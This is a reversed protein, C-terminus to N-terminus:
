LVRNWFTDTYRTEFKKRQSRKSFDKVSLVAYKRTSQSIPGKRILNQITGIGRFRKLARASRVPNKVHSTAMTCITQHAHPTRSPTPACAVHLEHNNHLSSDSNPVVESIVLHSMSRTEPPLSVRYWFFLSRKCRLLSCCRPLKSRSCSPLTKSTAQDPRTTRHAIFVESLSPRPKSQRTHHQRAAPSRTQPDNSAHDRSGCMSLSDEM